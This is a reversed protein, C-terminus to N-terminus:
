HYDVFEIEGAERGNWVFCIRWKDNVRVSYQGARDGKLAELKMGPFMQLDRLNPLNGILRLRDHARVAVDAPVGKIPENEYLALTRKNKFKRM